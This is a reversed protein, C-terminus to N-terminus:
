SAGVDALERLAKDDLTVWEAALNELVHGTSGTGPILLVDPALQLLWQLAVQPPTVGLRAATRIVVPSTLVPNAAGRPLGLPCFPVFAIGRRICEALVPSSGRDALHFLNQVCAIETGDAAHQLQELSVNSLGVGAILGEDRAQVMTALQDDFRADARGPSPVRLNVAALQGVRLSRLNDEIGQRLQRADRGTDRFVGVKSVIALERPYPYLAERILDNVVDPGYYQATDIHDIGNTVAARLVGIASARDPPANVAWPGALQMAGYGSRRVQRPGLPFTSMPRAPGDPDAPHSLSM